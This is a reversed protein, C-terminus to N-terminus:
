ATGSRRNRYRKNAAAAASDAKIPFPCEAAGSKSADSDLGLLSFSHQGDRLLVMPPSPERGLKRLKGMLFDVLGAIGLSFRSAPQEAAYERSGHYDIERHWRM